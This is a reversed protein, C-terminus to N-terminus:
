REVRNQEAIGETGLDGKPQYQMYEPLAAFTSLYLSLAEDLLVTMPRGTLEKVFYLERIRRYHIRPQYIKQDTKRSIREVIPPNSLM